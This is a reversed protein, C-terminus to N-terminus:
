RKENASIVYDVKYKLIHLHDHQLQSTSPASGEAFNSGGGDSNEEEEEDDEDEM